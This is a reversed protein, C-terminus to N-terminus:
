AAKAEKIQEVSEGAKQALMDVVQRIREAESIAPNRLINLCSAAFVEMPSKRPDVRGQSVVWQRCARGLAQLTPVDYRKRNALSANWAKVCEGSKMYALIYFFDTKEKRLAPTWIPSGDKVLLEKEFTAEALLNKALRVTVDRKSMGYAILESAKVVPTLAVNEKVEKGAKGGVVVLVERIAQPAGTPAATVTAPAPANQSEQLADQLAKQPRQKQKKITKQAVM